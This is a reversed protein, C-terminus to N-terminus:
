ISHMGERLAYQLPRALFLLFSCFSSLLIAVAQFSVCCCASVAKRIKSPMKGHLSFRSRLLCLNTLECEGVFSLISNPPPPFSCVQEESIPFRKEVPELLAFYRLYAERTNDSKDIITRMDERSQHLHILANEHQQAVDHSFSKAIFEKLPQVLDLKNTTKLPVSLM